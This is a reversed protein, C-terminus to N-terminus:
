AHRFAFLLMLMLRLTFFFSSYDLLWRFTDDAIFLMMAIVDDDM